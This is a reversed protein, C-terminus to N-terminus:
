TKTPSKTRGARLREGRVKRLYFRLNNRATALKELAQADKGQGLLVRGEALRDSAERLFSSQEQAPPPKPVFQAPRELGLELKLIAVTKETNVYALWAASEAKGASRADEGLAFTM